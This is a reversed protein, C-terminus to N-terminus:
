VAASQWMAKGEDRVHISDGEIAVAHSGRHWIAQHRISGPRWGSYMSERSHKVFRKINSRIDVIATKIARRYSDHAQRCIKIIGCEKSIRGVESWKRLKWKHVHACMSVKTYNWITDIDM